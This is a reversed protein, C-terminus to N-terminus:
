SRVLQEKEELEKEMEEKTVFTVNCKDLMKEVLEFEWSEALIHSRKKTFYVRLFDGPEYTIFIKVPIRQSGVTWDCCGIKLAHTKWNYKLPIFWGEWLGWEPVFRPNGRLEDLGVM